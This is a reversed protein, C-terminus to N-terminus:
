GPIDANTPGDALNGQIHISHGGFLDRAEHWFEFRGGLAVTISDLKMEQRFTAETVPEEGEDLWSENKLALLSRVAYDRIRLDWTTQALCLTRAVELASAPNGNQDTEAALTVKSGCWLVEGEYWDVRRDLTLTGFDRDDITVPEQLKKARKRLEEDSDAAGVIKILEVGDGSGRALIELLDYPSIHDMLRHWEGDSVRRRVRLRSGHLPGGSVRWPELEFKFTWKGDQGGTMGAPGSAHVAGLIVTEGDPIREDVAEDPIAEGSHIEIRKAEPIVSLWGTVGDAPLLSSWQLVDKNDAPADLVLTFRWPEQTDGIGIWTRGQISPPSDQLLYTEAIFGDCWLGLRKCEAVGSMERSVRYELRSWFEQEDM